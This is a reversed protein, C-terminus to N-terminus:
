QFSTCEQPEPAGVDYNCAAGAWSGSFCIPDVCYDEGTSFGSISGSSCYGNVPAWLKDEEDGGEDRGDLIDIDGGDGACLIDAGKEGRLDDNGEGGQLVDDGWGGSITDDDDGGWLVDNATGGIIVDNGAGGDVRTPTTAAGWITDNGNDGRVNFNDGTATLWGRGDLTDSGNGLIVSTTTHPVDNCVMLVDDVRNFTKVTVKTPTGTPCFNFNTGNGIEMTDRRGTGLFQWEEWKNDNDWQCCFDEGDWTQGWVATHSSDGPYDTAAYLEASGVGIGRTLSCEFTSGTNECVDHCTATSYAPPAEGPSCDEFVPPTAHAILGLSLVFM